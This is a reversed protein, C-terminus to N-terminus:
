YGIASLKQMNDRKLALSTHVYRELTIRPSAHGLIESLSKLEFDVEVCRTAFSHRLTHFHVGELGCAETYRRLRYQLVRPELYRGAEGTLVYASPDERWQSRCLRMGYDTLPIVRRSSDSKPVSVVVKTRGEQGSDYDRLRQMTAGVKVIRESLSVDEWRLACVEGIRMGTLLALLVGFKCEDMDEALYAAFLAQEERTLVRMERKPIKPYAAGLTPLPEGSRAAADRLVSHLLTLIDKVTKPSLAEENLLARSFQELLDSNLARLQCGGLRPLIHKSMIGRYKVYTSERIRSRNRELWEECRSELRRRQVEEPIVEKPLMARARHVKQKAEWYTGAYCYGYRPKGDPRYGKIYRAEWRNDKRKYINEGKRAM